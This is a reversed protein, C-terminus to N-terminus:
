LRPTLTCHPIAPSTLQSIPLKLDKRLRAVWGRHLVLPVACPPGRVGDPDSPHTYPVILSDLSMVQGLDCLCRRDRATSDPMTSTPPLIRPNDWLPMADLQERRVIPAPVLELGQWAQIAHHYFVPACAPLQPEPAFVADCGIRRPWNADAIWRRLLYKEVSPKPNIWKRVTWAQNAAIVHELRQVQLGGKPLPAYV